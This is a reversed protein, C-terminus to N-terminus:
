SARGNAIVLGVYGGAQYERIAAWLELQVKSHFPIFPNDESFVVFKSDPPIGDHECAKVWLHQRTAELNRIHKQGDKFIKTALNM